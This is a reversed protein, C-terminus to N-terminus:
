WVSKLDDALRKNFIEAGRKNLHQANYFYAKNYCMEDDSYDLYTIDYALAFDSYIKITEARNKVFRQGEIYEPTNVFVVRINKSKCENLFDGFLAISTKDNEIVLYGLSDHLQSFEDNWEKEWVVYGKRRETTTSSNPLSKKFAERIANKRGFYRVMPINYDCFTFDNVEHLFDRANKNWLMYPLFQDANFLNRGKMLSFDDISIIIVEPESNFKMLERHRYYIHWFGLGNIGLNYCRKGLRNNLVEPNIYLARSAGYIVIEDSIKGSYIDNWVPFEGSVFTGSQKLNKSIWLDAPWLILLIPLLFILLKIRLKKM